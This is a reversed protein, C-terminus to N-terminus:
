QVTDPSAPEQEPIPTATKGGDSHAEPAPQAVPQPAAQSEAAPAKPEHIASPAAQVAIDTLRRSINSLGGLIEQSYRLQQNECADLRNKQEALLTELETQMRMRELRMAIKEEEQTKRVRLSEELQDKVQGLQKELYLYQSAAFTGLIAVASTVVVFLAFAFNRM